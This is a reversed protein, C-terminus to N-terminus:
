GLAYVRWLQEYRLLDTRKRAKVCFSKRIMTVNTTISRTTVVTYADGLGAGRGDRARAVGGCIRM